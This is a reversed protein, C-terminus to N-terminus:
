EGGSGRGSPAPWAGAAQLAAQRAWADAHRIADATVALGGDARYVRPVAAGGADPPAMRMVAAVVGAIGPFSLRGQLFLNVAQENAANLIAPMTGGMRAAEYGLLLAPFRTTDPREFTLGGVVALDLRPLGADLREPYSLAYLIPYRMDPPAMQALTSGDKMVVLSHVISQPHVLVEVQGPDLDFFWCAEIVELAKNMLTASDVTIKPGMRWTPHRLAAAPTIEAMDTGSHHLFPGGSATLIVRSVSDRHSVGQTCQWIASPESDVPLVAVGQSAAAHKVLPGGAVLTEKNALALTHGADIAALSAWLGTVGTIANLVVDAAPWSAAAMVAEAGTEVRFGDAALRDVAEHEGAIDAVAIFEPRLIRAQEVLVPSVRGAALAVAQFRDPFISIVEAAQRGISGTSGLVAIRKLTL